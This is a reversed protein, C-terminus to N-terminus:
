TLFCEAIEWDDETDIDVSHRQDMLFPISEDCYHQETTRLWDARMIYISANHVYARKRCSVSALAPADSWWLMMVAGDIHEPSRIPSTPHLLAVLDYDAGLAELVYKCVQGSTSTDSAMPQDIVDAGHARSIRAIEDSDTSVVIDALAVAGLAAEITYAILPKGCLLRTNKGPIRKSGGRAPIVGLVRPLSLM